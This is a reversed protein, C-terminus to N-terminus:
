HNRNYHPPSSREELTVQFKVWDTRRYGPRDLLNPFSSQCTTGILVPLHDSSLASCVTLYVPLTPDKTIVIDLADHTASSHYPVCTPSDPGYILCPHRSAYDRLLKGGTATLRSNWDVHKANLDDAMLVPFGGGFCASLDLGILPRSHSFYVDLTKVPCSALMVDIATAELQNLGLVPVAYHETSRRVM